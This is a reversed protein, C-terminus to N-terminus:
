RFKKSYLLYREFYIEKGDNNYEEVSVIRGGMLQVVTKMKLFDDVVHHDESGHLWTFQSNTYNPAKSSEIQFWGGRM